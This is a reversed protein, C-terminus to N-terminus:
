RGRRPRVPPSQSPQGAPRHGSGSKTVELLVCDLCCAPAPPTIGHERDWAPRLELLQRVLDWTPSRGNRRHPPSVGAARAIARLVPEEATVVDPGLGRTYCWRALTQAKLGRRRQAQVTQAFDVEPMADM